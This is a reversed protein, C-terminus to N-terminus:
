RSPMVRYESPDLDIQFEPAPLKELKRLGEIMSRSAPYVPLHQNLVADASISLLCQQGARQIPLMTTIVTNLHRELLLFNQTALPYHVTKYLCYVQSPTSLLIAYNM